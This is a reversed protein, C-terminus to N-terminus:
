ISCYVSYVYIYETYMRFHICYLFFVLEGLLKEKTYVDEFRKKKESEVLWYKNEDTTM